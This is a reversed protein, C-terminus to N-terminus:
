MLGSYDGIQNCIEAPPNGVKVLRRKAAAAEDKPDVIRYLPYLAERSEWLGFTSLESFRYQQGDATVAEFACEAYTGWGCSAHLSRLGARGSLDFHYVRGDGGESVQQIIPTAFASGAKDWGSAKM